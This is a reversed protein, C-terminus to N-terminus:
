GGTIQKCLYLVSTGRTLDKALKKKNATVGM